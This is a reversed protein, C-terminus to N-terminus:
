MPPAAAAAAGMRKSCLLIADIGAPLAPLEEPTWSLPDCGTVM